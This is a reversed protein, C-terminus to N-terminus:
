VLLFASLFCFLFDAAPVFFSFFIAFPFLKKNCLTNEAINGGSSLTELMCPGAYATSPLFHIWKVKRSSTRRRAPSSHLPIIIFNSNPDFTTATSRKADDIALMQLKAEGPSLFVSLSVTGCTRGDSFPFIITLSYASRMTRMRNAYWMWKDPFYRLEEPQSSNPRAHLLGCISIPELPAPLLFPILTNVNGSLANCKEQTQVHFRCDNQPSDHFRACDSHMSREVPTRTLFDLSVCSITNIKNM